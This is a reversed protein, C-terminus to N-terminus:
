VDLVGGLAERVTEKVVEGARAHVAQWVDVMPRFEPRLELTVALSSADPSSIFCFASLERFLLAKTRSDSPLCFARCVEAKTRFTRSSSLSKGFVTALSIKFVADAASERAKKTHLFNKDFDDCARNIATAPIKPDAWEPQVVRRMACFLIHHGPQDEGFYSIISRIKPDRLFSRILATRAEQSLPLPPLPPAQSLASALATPSM